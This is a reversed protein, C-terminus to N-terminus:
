EPITAPGEGSRCPFPKDLISPSVFTHFDNIFNAHINVMNIFTNVLSNNTMDEKQIVLTFVILILSLLNFFASSFGWTDGFIGSTANLGSKFFSFYINFGVIVLATIIVFYFYKKKLFNM